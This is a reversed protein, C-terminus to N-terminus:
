RAGGNPDETTNVRRIFSNTLDTGLVKLVGQNPRDLLIMQQMLTTKGSGSGGLIGFLEGKNIEFSVGDHMDHDGFATVINQAQVL